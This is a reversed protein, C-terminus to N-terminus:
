KNNDVKLFSLIDHNCNFDETLVKLLLLKGCLRAFRDKAQKYKKIEKFHKQPLKEVLSLWNKNLYNYDLKTYLIQIPSNNTIKMSLFRM